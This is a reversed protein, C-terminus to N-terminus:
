SQSVQSLQDRFTPRQRFLEVLPLFLKRAVGSDRRQAENDARLEDWSVWEWGFCKEPELNQPQAGADVMGAMFITIYHKNESEFVSNVATLFQLNHIQLGTEELLERAACIEFSEGFELHGGPLAWTGAGHSGKREGLLFKGESNIAFVGVGVKPEM